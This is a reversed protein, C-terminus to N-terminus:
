DKQNKYLVYGTLLPFSIPYTIGTIIGLTTYGIVNAFRDFSTAKFTLSLGTIFGLFTTTPAFIPLLDIYIYLINKFRSM